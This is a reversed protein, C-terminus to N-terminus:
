ALGNVCAIAQDAQALLPAAAESTIRGADVLNQVKVKFDGLKKAADANKGKDLETSADTLKGTLGARDKDANKGSIALSESGVATRLNAIQTECDAATQAVAPTVPVLAVPAAMLVLLAPGLIRM